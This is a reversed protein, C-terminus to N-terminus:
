WEDVDIITAPRVLEYCDNVVSVTYITTGPGDFRGYGGHIHGCIVLRPRIREIAGLLDPNGLHESTGSSTGENRDGFGFPPQHTVLIDIGEPIAAYLRALDERPKM